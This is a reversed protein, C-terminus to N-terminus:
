FVNKTSEKFKDCTIDAVNELLLLLHVKTSWDVRLQEPAADVGEERPTRATQCRNAFRNATDTVHPTKLLTSEAVNESLPLTDTSLLVSDLRLEMPNDWTNGTQHYYEQFRKILFPLM